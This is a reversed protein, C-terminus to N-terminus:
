LQLRDRVGVGARLWRSLHLPTQGERSPFTREVGRMGPNERALSLVYPLSSPTHPPFGM